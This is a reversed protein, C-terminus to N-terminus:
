FRPALPGGHDAMVRGAAMVILTFHYTKPAAFYILKGHVSFLSIQLVSASFFLRSAKGTIM